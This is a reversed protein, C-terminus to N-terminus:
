QLLRQVAEDWGIGLEAVRKSGEEGMTRAATRDNYFQDMRSALLQPDPPCIWGNRGDIVLERTGGADSTTIVPKRAGYAELCPFGYSDEDQPFYLVALCRSFLELKENEPIWQERFVVRDELQYKAALLRLEMPYQRSGAETPGAIVLKVPTKTYRLSEIALAQRKHPALRSLYLCFGEYQPPFPNDPQLLPPYLVEADIGNFTKLRERVVESNSFIRRAEGLGINDASIIARRCAAGEETHSISQYKTGWLDYAGRYHHIFWSVKQPHRLLHAPTRVTLLRDGHQSLDLLRFALSEELIHHPDDSFPFRLTEVEHGRERLAVALWDVILTAGGKVFPSFSTAVIVKM